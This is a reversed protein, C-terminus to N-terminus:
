GGMVIKGRAARNGCSSNRFINPSVEGRQAFIVDQSDLARFMTTTMTAETTTTVM